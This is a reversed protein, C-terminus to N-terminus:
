ETPSDNNEVRRPLEKTEQVPQVNYTLRVGDRNAEEKEPQNRWGLFYGLALEIAKINGSEASRILARVINFRTEVMYRDRFESYKLQYKKKIFKEITDPHVEFFDAADKLRPKLRMLVQLQKEKKPDDDFMSPRGRGSGKGRAM